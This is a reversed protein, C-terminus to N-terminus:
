NYFIKLNLFFFCLCFPQVDPKRLMRALGEPWWTPRQRANFNYFILKIVKPNKNCFTEEPTVYAQTEIISYVPPTRVGDVHSDIVHNVVEEAM